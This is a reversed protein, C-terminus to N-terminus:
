SVWNHGFSFRVSVRVSILTFVEAYKSHLGIQDSVSVSVSLLDSHETHVPRLVNPFLGSFLSNINAGCFSFYSKTLVLPRHGSFM